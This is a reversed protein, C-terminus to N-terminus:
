FVTRLSKVSQLVKQSSWLSKSPGTNDDYNNEIENTMELIIDENTIEITDTAYQVQLTM